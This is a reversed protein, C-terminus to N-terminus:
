AILNVFSGRGLSQDFGGASIRGFVQDLNSSFGLNRQLNELTDIRGAAINIANGLRSLAERADARSLTQLNGIGLGQSDLAQPLVSISGGFQTTQIGIRPSAGSILNANGFAAAAVLNDIAAVARRLGSQINTRSIRTGEGAAASGSTGFAVGNYDRLDASASVLGDDTAIQANARLARLANLIAYGADLARAVATNAAGVSLKVQGHGRSAALAAPLEGAGLRAASAGSIRGAQILASRGDTAFGIAVAASIEAM